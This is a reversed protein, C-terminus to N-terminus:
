RQESTRGGRLSTPPRSPCRRRTGPTQAAHALPRKIPRRFPHSKTPLPHPAPAAHSTTPFPPPPADPRIQAHPPLPPQASALRSAAIRVHASISQAPVDAQSRTSASRRRAANPLSSGGREVGASSHGPQLPPRVPPTPAPVPCSEGWDYAAPARSPPPPCPSSHPNGNAAPPALRRRPANEPATRPTQTTPVPRSSPPAVLRSLTLLYYISTPLYM